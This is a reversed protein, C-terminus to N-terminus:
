KGLRMQKKGNKRKLHSKKRLSDLKIKSSFISMSKPIENVIPKKITTTDPLDKKIKARATSDVKNKEKIIEVVEKYMETFDDPNVLYYKYSKVYDSTDVEYKAFIKTEMKRYLFNATDTNPIGFNNIDGEMLHIDALINAMKSKSVLNSPKTGNKKACSFLVISLLLLISKGCLSTLTFSKTYITKGPNTMKLGLISM